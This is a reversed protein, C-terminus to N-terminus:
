IRQMVDYVKEAYRKDVGSNPYSVGVPNEILRNSLNQTNKRGGNNFIGGVGSNYAQSLVIINEENTGTPKIWGNLRTLYAPILELQYAVTPIENPLMEELVMQTRSVSSNRILSNEGIAHQKAEKFASNFIQPLGAAAQLKGNSFGTGVTEKFYSTSKSAGLWPTGGEVAVIAQILEKPFGYSLELDNLRNSFNPIEKEIYNNLGEIRRLCTDQFGNKQSKNSYPAGAALTYNPIILMASSM